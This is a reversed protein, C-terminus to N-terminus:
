GPQLEKEQAHEALINQGNMELRALPRQNDLTAADVEGRRRRGLWRALLMGVALAVTELLLGYGCGRAWPPRFRLSIEAAGPPV